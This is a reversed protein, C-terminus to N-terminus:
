TRIYNKHLYMYKHVEPLPQVMLFSKMKVEIESGLLSVDLEGERVWSRCCGRGGEGLEQLVRDRESETRSIQQQLTLLKSEYQQRM